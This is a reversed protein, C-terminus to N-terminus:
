LTLMLLSFLCRSSWPPLSWMVPLDRCFCYRSRWACVLFIYLSHGTDPETSWYITSGIGPHLPSLLLLLPSYVIKQAVQVIHIKWNFLVSFLLRIFLYNRFSRVFLNNVPCFLSFLSLLLVPRLLMVPLLFRTTFSCIM